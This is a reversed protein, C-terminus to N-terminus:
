TKRPFVTVDPPEALELPCGCSQRIVLRPSFVVQRDEVAEGAFRRKLLDTIALVIGRSDHHIATVPPDLYGLWSQESVAVLALEEPVRISLDHIALHAGIFTAYELALVATPKPEALLARQVLKRADAVNFEDELTEVVLDCALGSQALQEYVGEVSKIMGSRRTSLVLVRGTHGHDLIHQIGIRGPARFDVALASGPVGSIPSVLQVVPLGSDVLRLLTERNDSTPWFLLTDLQKAALNELWERERKADYRTNAVIVGVGERAALMDLERFIASGLPSNINPVLLGVTASHQRRLARAVANPRYNLQAVADQVLQRVDESVFRTENLVHSVTTISVGAALAVDRITIRNRTRGMGQARESSDTGIHVSDTSM